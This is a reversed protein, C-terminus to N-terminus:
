TERSVSCGGHGDARADGREERLMVRGGLGDLRESIRSSRSAAGTPASRPARGAVPRRRARRPSARRAELDGLEAGGASIASRPAPAPRGPRTSAATAGRRVRPARRTPRACTRTGAAVGGVGHAERVDLHHAGPRLVPGVPEAAAVDDGGARQGRQGHQALVRRRQQALAAHEHRPLPRDVIGLGGVGSGGRAVEPRVASGTRATTGNGRSPAAFAARAACSRAWAARNGRRSPIAVFRGSDAFFTRQSRVLM